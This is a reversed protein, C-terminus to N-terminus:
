RLRTQHQEVFTTIRTRDTPDIDMFEVGVGRDELRRRVIARCGVKGLATLEFRLRLPRGV